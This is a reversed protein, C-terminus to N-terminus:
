RPWGVVRARSDGHVDERKAYAAPRAWNLGLCRCRSGLEEPLPNGLVLKSDATLSGVPLAWLMELMEGLGVGVLEAM